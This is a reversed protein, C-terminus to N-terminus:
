RIFPINAGMSPFVFRVIVDDFADKYQDKKLLIDAIAGVMHLAGDKQQPTSNPDNLVQNVLQICKPLVGKRKKCMCNLLQEGCNVSSEQELSEGYKARIYEVPDEKWLQEDADSHCMLPFIVDSLMTMTYPKMFKWSHAHSVANKLYLIGDRMVKEAVFAGSRYLEMLKFVVQLAGESYNNLYYQAFEKYEKTVGGPSGYRDFMRYLIRMAWKKTKWWENNGLEDRDEEDAPKKEFEPNARNLFLLFHKVLYENFFLTVQSEGIWFKDSL